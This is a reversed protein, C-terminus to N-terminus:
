RSGSVREWGHRIALKFREWAGQPHRSEWDRRADSEIDDWRRGAYRTDAALSHGYRYAPAYDDYTGGQAAYRSEFDQRFEPEYDEYTRRSAIGSAAETATRNMTGSAGGRDVEVETRRVTDEVVKPTESVQKGVVVEEVVRAVKSVVAREAMEPVEVSKERFAEDLDASTAERDVPHREITAHEERLNVTERVPTEVVRTFVRVVGKQEQRKGVELSEKLVPMVTDRERAAQDTTYPGADPDYGSWGQQRWHEVRQDIDIAGAEELASCVPSVDADDAVDVALVVGGRRIAESYNDVQDSHGTGFLNGFFNRIGSMAGGQYEHRIEGAETYDAGTSAIHMASRDIGRNALATEASYAADPTDFIGVVTQTM